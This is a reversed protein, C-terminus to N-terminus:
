RICVPETTNIHKNDTITFDNRNATLVTICPMPYFSLVWHEILM